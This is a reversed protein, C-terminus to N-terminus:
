HTKCLTQSVDSKFFPRQFHGMGDVLVGSVIADTFRQDAVLEHSRERKTVVGVSMYTLDEHSKATRVRVKTTPHSSSRWDMYSLM